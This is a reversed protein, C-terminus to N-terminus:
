DNKIIDVLKCTNFVGKETILAKVYKIPTFDFAPNFVKVDKPAIYSGNIMRLEDADREEIIVEEERKSRDFTSLPVAVYFPIGNEKALVAHTYTGIKNFVGDKTIRDAGVIVKDVMKKRMVMGATSDTILRVDIGDNMLEWTTLRGGQNLPRTECAVVKIDKGMEVASRVIGLATGWGVCALRGANCHTLVTDGDELLAAGNRGIMKNIVIDEDAIREAENLADKRIEEIKKERLIKNLVRDVGWSLNIATPRSNKIKLSDSILINKLEEVNAGDYSFSSLAVGYGGAAGLAPAGRISLSKIADILSDITLCKIIDLKLPLKTQDIMEICNVSYNWWITRNNM